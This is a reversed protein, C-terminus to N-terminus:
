AGALRDPARPEFDVAYLLGFIRPGRILYRRALRRPDQVLRFLWELSLKQMWRPARSEVGTLFNISAGICCALGRARSRQKLQYALMEQQPCGVALLCYRFPSHAEVFNLTREVAEPDRIFGMPPNYHRLQRLGYRQSLSLAQQATGGILVVVDDLAITPLLGAVVDSGPCVPLKLGRTVHLLRALLRSDLLVFGAGAYLTRFKADDFFRIVHDVNPTVVYDFSDHGYRRAVALFGDLDYTDVNLTLSL